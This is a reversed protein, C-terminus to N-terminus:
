KTKSNIIHDDAFVNFLCSHLLYRGNYMLSCYICIHEVLECNRATFTKQVPKNVDNQQIQRFYINKSEEQKVTEVQKLMNVTPLVQCQIKEIHALSSTFDHLSQQSGSFLPFFGSGTICGTGTQHTSIISPICEIYPPFSHLCDRWGKTKIEAPFPHCGSNNRIELCM